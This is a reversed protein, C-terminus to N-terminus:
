CVFMLLLDCLLTNVANLPVGMTGYEVNTADPTYKAVTGYFM